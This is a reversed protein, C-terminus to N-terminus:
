QYLRYHSGQLGSYFYCYCCANAYCIKCKLVSKSRNEVTMMGLISSTALTSGIEIYLPQSISTHILMVLQQHVCLILPLAPNVGVAWSGLQLGLRSPLSSPTRHGEQNTDFASAAAIAGVKDGWLVILESSAPEHTSRIWKQIGPVQCM